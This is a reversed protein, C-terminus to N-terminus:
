TEKMLRARQRTSLTESQGFAEPLGLAIIIFHFAPLLVLAETSVFHQKNTAKRTTQTM